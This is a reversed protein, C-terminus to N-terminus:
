WNADTEYGLKILADGDTKKFIEKERAGYKDQWEGPQGRRVFTVGETNKHSRGREQEMQQMNRFDSLEVATNIREGSVGLSIFDSVRKLELYTDKIMDEYRVLLINEQDEPNSIWSFIHEQWTCPASYKNELFDAFTVDPSLKNSLYHFYSIYVDRGDRVLYIVRPYPQYKEHSKIIRPRYKINGILEEQGLVPIHEDVNHFDIEIDTRLNALLFRMWTIGSKPYAVVFVDDEWFPSATKKRMRLNAFKKILM